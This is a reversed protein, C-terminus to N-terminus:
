VYVCMCVRTMCIYVYMHRCFCIKTANEELAYICVYVHLYRMRACVCVCVNSIKTARAISVHLYVWFDQVYGCVHVCMLRHTLTMYNEGVVHWTCIIHMYIYIYVCVYVEIYTCVNRHVPPTTDTYIGHILLIRIYVCYVHMCVQRCDMYIGHVLLIWIYVCILVIYMCVYGDVTMSSAM